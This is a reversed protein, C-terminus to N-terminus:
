VVYALRAYWNYVWSLEIQRIGASFQWKTVSLCRVTVYSVLNRNWVKDTRLVEWDAVCQLWVLQVSLRHQALSDSQSMLISCQYIIIIILGIIAICWLHEFIRKSQQLVSLWKITWYFCFLSRTYGKSIYLSEDNFIRNWIELM